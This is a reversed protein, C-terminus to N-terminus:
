RQSRHRIDSTQHRIDSTQHRIDSTQHRYKRLSTATVSGIRLLRSVRPKVQSIYCEESLHTHTLNLNKTLALIVSDGKGPFCEKVFYTKYQETLQMDSVTHSVYFAAVMFVFIMAFAIMPEWICYSQSLNHDYKFM